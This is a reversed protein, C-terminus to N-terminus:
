HWLCNYLEDIRNQCRDAELENGSESYKDRKIEWNQIEKKIRTYKGNEKM